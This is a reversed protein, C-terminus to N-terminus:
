NLVLIKQIESKGGGSAPSVMIYYVGTSVRTNNLGSVDWEVSGGHAPGLEKVIGGTSDTIKVLSGDALNDIRVWGYFDPEVPNPYARFSAAEPAASGGSGSPFMEVLGAGTAVLLSNNEPNYCTAFVNDDPLYSNDSTFEGLITRCDRSTCVLGNSTSFWKRGEGDISMHNVNIENLLYDALNTGDNRAVKIRTLLNPNEFATRPNVTFLGRQTMVYVLGSEPDEALANVSLLTVGGGDQDVYNSMLVYRDDSTNDPTGKHDYFYVTGGNTMGGIALMTPNQKLTIMVDRNSHPFTKAPFSKMPRYTSASVTAARDAASWYFIDARDEKHNRFLTWMTGDSTFEPSTFRCLINWSQDEAVKVFGPIRSNANSPNAFVMIDDPKSTNLRLLGNTTSGRYIYQPNQPDIGIGNYNNPAPMLDPAAYTPGYEKWFGGKLASVNAPTSQSFDSYAVDPGNSGAMIGYSPHHRIDTALYTAPANPRMYDHAVAWSDGNRKYGKLGKRSALVWLESNNFSTSPARFAEEPRNFATLTGDPALYLVSVNGGIAYGSPIEQSCFIDPDDRLRECAFNAGASKFLEIYANTGSRYGAFSDSNLPLLVDIRPAGAIDQYDSLNYRQHSAPAYLVKSETALVINSGCRAASLINEEYNRSEAVEHREDNLALYGFTTAVYARNGSHDFTISNALKKGQISASKLAPLNFVRGDDYIFDIDCDTYVVLLYKKAANYAISAVVNGSANARENVSVIEDGKKDYYFLSHSPISREALSSAYEFTRGLIYVRNPTEVVQVPYQDFPLHIKWDATIAAKASFLAAFLAAIIFLSKKM